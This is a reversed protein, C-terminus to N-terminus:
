ETGKRAVRAKIRSLSVTTIGLYSALYKQPVRQIFDPRKEQIHLFREEPSLLIYFELREVAEAITMRLQKNKLKMVRPNKDALKDAKQIDILLILSPEIAEVCETSPKGHLYSAYSGTAMKESSLLLTREEGEATLVYNRLLGRLVVIGYTSLEGINIIKEGAQVKKLRALGYLLKLDEIKLFAFEKFYELFNKDM